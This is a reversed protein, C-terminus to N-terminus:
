NVPASRRRRIRMLTLGALGLALTGPEPVSLNLLGIESYNDFSGAPDYDVFALGYGSADVFDGTGGRVTYDLTFQGGTDLIAAMDYSGSVDGYLTSMLDTTTFEFSGTLTQTAADLNFLVFSVLSLPADVMPPVLQDISGVWGGTGAAADFVSLNGAGAYPVFLTTPEARALGPALLVLALSACSLCRRAFPIPSNMDPAGLTSTSAMAVRGARLQICARSALATDDMRRHAAYILPDALHRV